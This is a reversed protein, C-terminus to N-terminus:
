LDSKVVGFPSCDSVDCRMCALSLVRVGYGLFLVDPNMCLRIPHSYILLCPLPHTSVGLHCDGLCHIESGWFLYRTFFVPRTVHIVLVTDGFTTQYGITGGHIEGTDLSYGASTYLDWRTDYRMGAWGLFLLQFTLSLSSSLPPLCPAPCSSFSSGQM